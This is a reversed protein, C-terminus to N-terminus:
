SLDDNDNTNVSFLQVFLGNNINRFKPDIM